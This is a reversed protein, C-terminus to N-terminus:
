FMILKPGVTPFVRLSLVSFSASKRCLIMSAAYMHPPSTTDEQLRAHTVWNDSAGELRSIGFWCCAILHNLIILRAIGFLLSWYM